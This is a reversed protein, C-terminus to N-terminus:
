REFCLDIFSEEGLEVVTKVVLFVLEVILKHIFPDIGALVLRERNLIL